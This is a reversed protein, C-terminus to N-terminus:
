PPFSAAPLQGWAGRTHMEMHVDTSMALAAVDARRQRMPLRVEAGRDAHGAWVGRTLQLM